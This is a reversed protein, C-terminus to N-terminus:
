NKARPEEWVPDRTEGPLAVGNGDCKLCTVFVRSNVLIQMRYVWWQGNAKHQWYDTYDALAYLNRKKTMLSNKIYSPMRGAPIKLMTRNM